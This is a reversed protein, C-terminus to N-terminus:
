LVQIGNVKAMQVVSEFRLVIRGSADSKATVTKVVAKNRVQGAEAFIDFLNLVKVNNAYVNFVRQGPAVIANYSENFHLRITYNKNATLSAVGYTFNGWRETKYVDAPAANAVGTTNITAYPDNNAISGGFYNIDQNFTGVTVGGANIVKTANKVPDPQWFYGKATADAELFAFNNNLVDLRNMNWHSWGLGLRECTQTVFLDNGFSVSRASDTIGLQANTLTSPFNNESPWGPYRSHLNRLNEANPFLNADGHYLHYAVSTKTWDIPTGLLDFTRALTGMGDVYGWSSIGAPTLVMIHSNPAGQRIINYTNRLDQLRVPDGEYTASAGIGSGSLAENDMEFIVHTRNKFYPAVYTWLAQNYPADFNPIANHSNIIAYMGNNTCLNVARELRALMANRYTANNWDTQVYGAEKEWTDFLILRVANFGKGRMAAYYASYEEQWQQSWIWATGARLPTGNDTRLVKLLATGGMADPINAVTIRGRDRSQSVSQAQVMSTTLM